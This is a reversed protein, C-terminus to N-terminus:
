TNEFLFQLEWITGDHFGGCGWGQGGIPWEPQNGNEGKGCGHKQNDRTWGDPIDFRSDHHIPILPSHLDPCLQNLRQRSSYDM